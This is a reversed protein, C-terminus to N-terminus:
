GQMSRPTVKNKTKSPYTQSLIKEYELNIGVQQLNHHIMSVALIPHSRGYLRLTIMPM